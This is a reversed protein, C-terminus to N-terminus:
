SNIKINLHLYEKDEIDMWVVVVVAAVAAAAVEHQHILKLSHQQLIREV